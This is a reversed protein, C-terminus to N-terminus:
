HSAAVGSAYSTDCAPRAHRQALEVSGYKRVAAEGLAHAIDPCHRALSPDRDVALQLSTLATGPDTEALEMLLQERLEDQASPPEQQQSPQEAREAGANIVTSDAPAEGWPVRAVALTGSLVLVM